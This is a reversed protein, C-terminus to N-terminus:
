PPYLCAIRYRGSSDRVLSTTAGLQSLCKRLWIASQRCDEQHSPISSVSPIATFKSLAYTLIDAANPGICPTEQYDSKTSPVADWVQDRGTLTARM